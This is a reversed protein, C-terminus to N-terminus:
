NRQLQRSKIKTNKLRCLRYLVKLRKTDEGHTQKTEEEISWELLEKEIEDLENQDLEAYQGNDILEEAIKCAAQIVSYVPELTESLM